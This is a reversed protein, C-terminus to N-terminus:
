RKELLTTTAWRVGERFNKTMRKWLEGVEASAVAGPKAWAPSGLLAAGFGQRKGAQRTVNTSTAVALPSPLDVLLSMFIM